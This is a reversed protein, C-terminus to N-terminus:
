PTWFGFLNICDKTAKNLLKFRNIRLLFNVKYIQRDLVEQFHFFVRMLNVPVDFV